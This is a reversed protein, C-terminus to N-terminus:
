GHRVATRWATWMKSWPPVEARTRAVTTRHDIHALLRQHLAALVLGQRQTARETRDLRAPLAALRSQLASKEAALLPPLAAPMPERLLSAPDLGAADLTALPLRLRGAAMDGRLDRLWESRAVAIGLERAFGREAPSPQRPLGAAAAALTQITGAARFALADLAAPTDLALQGLDADAAALTEHLLSLDDGTGHLPLLARTVPHEPRGGLLRDVEARWYQLRTHAVDHNPATVTDRVEAEFAYLARLLPRAAPPAYLVAFYRLSGAPTGRLLPDDASV